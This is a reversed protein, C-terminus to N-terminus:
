GRRRREVALRLRMAHPMVASLVRFAATDPPTFSNGGGTRGAVLDRVFEEYTTPRIGLDRLTPLAPEYHHTRVLQMIKVAHERPTPTTGILRLMLSLSLDGSPLYTVERGLVRTLVEALQDFRLSEPGTLDYARNEMGPETLAKVAAAAVDRVDVLPMAGDGASSSIVGVRTIMDWGILTFTQMFGHPRLVTWTLGSRELAREIVGHSRLNQTPGDLGAAFASCKVLHKVGASRAAAIFATERPILREDPTCVLYAKTAGELAKALSKPDDFDGHVSSVGRQALRERHSASRTMAVFPVSRQALLTAVVSGTNGTAGTLVIRESM